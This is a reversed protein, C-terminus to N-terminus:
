RPSRIPKRRMACQARSAATSSADRGARHHLLVVRAEYARSAPANGAQAIRRELEVPLTGTEYDPPPPELGGPPEQPHPTTTARPGELGVSPTRNGEGARRTRLEPLYLERSKVPSDTTRIWGPASVPRSAPLGRPGSGRSPPEFGERHVRVSSASRIPARRRLPSECTRIRGPTSDDGRTELETSLATAKSAM